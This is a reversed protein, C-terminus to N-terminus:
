PSYKEFKRARRKGLDTLLVPLLGDAAQKPRVEAFGMSEM